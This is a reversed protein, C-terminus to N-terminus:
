DSRLFEAIMPDARLAALDDPSPLEPRDRERDVMCLFGLPEDPGARFQHWTM